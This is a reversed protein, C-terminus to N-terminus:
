HLVSCPEQLNRARVEFVAKRPHENGNGAPHESRTFVKLVILLRKHNRGVDKRSEFAQEKRPIRARRHKPTASSDPNRKKVSGNWVVAGAGFRKCETSALISNLEVSWSVKEDREDM